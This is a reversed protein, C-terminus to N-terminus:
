ISTKIKNLDPMVGIQDSKKKSATGNVQNALLNRMEDPTYRPKGLSERMSQISLAAGAIIAAAGSTGNFTKTFDTTSQNNGTNGITKIRNGWAYCDIRSGYNTSADRTHPVRTTASGVMIAGSDKFAANGPDRKLVLQGSDDKFKDLNSGGNAAPEIVIIGSQVALQISKFIASEIEPPYNTPTTSQSSDFLLQTELLLVDGPKLVSTATAIANSTNNVFVTNDNSGKVREGVDSLRSAQSIVNATINPAIGVCGTENPQALIIGLVATGHGFHDVSSGSIVQIVPGPPIAPTVPTAAVAATLPLGIHNLTWGQELDIFQLGANGSGGNTWAVKADIGKPAPDLYGQTGSTAAPAAPPYAKSEKYAYEINKDKWIEKLLKNKDKENPFDITFYTLFNPPAYSKNRNKAKVAMELLDGKSLSTFLKNVRIGPFTKLMQNWSIINKDLLFDNIEQQGDYPMHFDDRFKLVIRPSFKISGSLGKKNM